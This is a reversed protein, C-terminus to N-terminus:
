RGFPVWQGNQKFAFQPQTFQFGQKFEPHRKLFYARTSSDSTAIKWTGNEKFLYQQVSVRGEQIKKGNMEIPRILHGYFTTDIVAFDGRQQIRGIDMRELAIFGSLRNLSETMKERSVRQQMESPLYDYLAAYKQAKLLSFFSQVVTRPESSRATTQAPAQTFSLALLPILTLLSLFSSFRFHM